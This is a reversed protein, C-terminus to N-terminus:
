EAVLCWPDRWWALVALNVKSAPFARASRGFSYLPRLPRLKEVLYSDYSDPHALEHSLV